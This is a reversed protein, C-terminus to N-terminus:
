KLELIKHLQLSIRHGHKMALQTCLAHNEHNQAVNYEDCPQLWIRAAENTPFYLNGSKVGPVQTMRYPIGLKEDIGMRASVIYKFNWCHNEILPHVKGTKPSCVLHVDGPPTCYDELGPIWLTGATEIQIEFGARIATEVFPVINQRLPEGGTMVILDPEYVKGGMEQAAQLIKRLVNQPHLRDTGSEFDTDCFWCQLNCGALRFFIAPRGAYPGEGQITPFIEQVWLTGSPDLEQKRLPNKGFM